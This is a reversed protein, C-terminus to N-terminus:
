EEEVMCHPLHNQLYENVAQEDVYWQKGGKRTELCDLRAQSIKGRLVARRLAPYGPHEKYKSLPVCGPILSPTKSRIERIAVRCESTYYAVGRITELGGMRKAMRWVTGRENNSQYDLSIPILGRGLADPDVVNKIKQNYRIKDQPTTLWHALFFVAGYTGRTAASVATKDSYGETKGITMIHSPTLWQDNLVGRVKTSFVNSANSLSPFNFIRAIDTIEMGFLAAYLMGRHKLSPITERIRKRFISGYDLPSGSLEGEEGVVAKQFVWEWFRRGLRASGVSNNKLLGPVGEVVRTALLHASLTRLRQDPPSIFPTVQSVTYYFLQRRAQPDGSAVKALGRSYSHDPLPENVNLLHRSKLYAELNEPSVYLGTSIIGHSYPMTSFASTPILGHQPTKFPLLKTNTVGLIWDFYIDEFPGPEDTEPLSPLAKLVRYATITPNFPVGWRERGESLIQELRNFLATAPESDPGLKRTERILPDNALLPSLGKRTEAAM